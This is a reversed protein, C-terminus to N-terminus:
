LKLEITKEFKFFVDATVGIEEEGYEKVQHTLSEGEFSQVEEHYGLYHVANNQLYFEKEHPILEFVLSGELCEKSVRNIAFVDTAGELLLGARTQYVLGLHGHLPTTEFGAYRCPGNRTCNFKIIVNAVETAGKTEGTMTPKCAEAGFEGELTISGSEGSFKVTETLPKSEKQFEPAGTTTFAKDAGDTTGNTNSAVIRYHYTTDISLGSIAKTEEVNSTGAGASAEATKTGYATTPGYEFYYKTETGKPNVTGKLTATKEGISTAAQTEDTPKGSPTFKQNAGHSTGDANTATIRYDYTSGLTLGTLTKSEEVSAEGSGASAEATKTGYSESTGYEFYYKTELGGAEVSGNLTAGSETVGTAPKTSATPSGALSFAGDPTGWGTPGDYGVEAECLYSGCSADLKNYNSGETIDFLKGKAGLKPFLEPGDKRAASSSLAEVGAVIPTAASTGCVLLWGAKEYSDYVSLASDCAGVAAVDNDTRKSCSSGTEWSPKAEYLSCGSGTGVPGYKSESEYWVAENWGRSNTAKKLETGGVAIVSPAAAPWWPRSGGDCDNIYCEDGAAVTIPIGPHEFASDESTETSHEAGGWSDSIETAKLTAAENEAADMNAFGSNTSEVLLIHCEPCAASVMDLDLSIETSWSPESSPYSGAEGKQNVKKFCKNAETCESLKYKERYKKLDSEANPDNFADVIAVTQQEPEKGGSAPLKYASRINEPSIGGGEGGGEAGTVGSVEFSMCQVNGESAASCVPTLEEAQAVPTVALAAILALGTILALLATTLRSRM